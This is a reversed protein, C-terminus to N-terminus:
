INMNQEDLQTNNNKVFRPSHHNMGAEKYQKASTVVILQKLVYASSCVKLKCALSDYMEM